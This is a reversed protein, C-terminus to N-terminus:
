ENAISGEVAKRDIAIGAPEGKYLPFNLVARREGAFNRGFLNFDAGSFVRIIYREQAICVSVLLRWLLNREVLM